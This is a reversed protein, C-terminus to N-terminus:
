LALGRLIDEAVPTVVTDGVGRSLVFRIEGDHRKKDQAMASILEASSEGCAGTTYDYQELVSVVRRAHADPTVGAERGLVMAQAMGWAVAAGHTWAGFGAVTELAHAFTHGLNLFARRGKERYDERVINAKV